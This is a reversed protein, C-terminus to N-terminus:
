FKLTPQISGTLILKTEPVNRLLPCNAVKQVRHNQTNTTSEGQFKQVYFSRLMLIINQALCKCVIKTDLPM